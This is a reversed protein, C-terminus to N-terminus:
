KRYEEALIAYFSADCIGQNNRDSKRHIGEFTMGCKRMVAGSHPNNPDHMSEIRSFGVEEFLYGIVSQLAETMIGCHWWHKGICYGIHASPVRGVCSALLSGIPEGTEKLVIMWHYYDEKRYNEVWTTVISRTVDMNEHAPWTLYKTVEPDNAWNRFMPEADAACARRLILRSTELTKTGKHKLM